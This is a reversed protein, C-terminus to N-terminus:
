GEGRGWMAEVGEGGRGGRDRGLAWRNLGREEEEVGDRGLEEDWKRGM